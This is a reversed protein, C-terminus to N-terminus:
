RDLIFSKQRTQLGCEGTNWQEQIEAAPQMLVSVPTIYTKSNLSKDPPKVSSRKIRAQPGSGFADNAEELSDFSKYIANPYNKVQTLTKEWTTYVGPNHGQWVVYYKQKKAAM